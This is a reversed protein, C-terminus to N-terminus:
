ARDCRGGGVFRGDERRESGGDNTRARAAPRREGGIPRRRPSPGVEYLGGGTPGPGAGAQCSGNGAGANVALTLCRGLAQQGYFNPHLTEQIDGQVLNLTLFRAWESTAGSPPSTLTAQRSATACAEHGQLSNRLDLFEVGKAAAV